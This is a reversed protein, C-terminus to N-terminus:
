AYSKIIILNERDVSNTSDSNTFYFRIPVFKNENFFLKWRLSWTFVENLDNQLEHIDTQSCITNLCKTDDAYLYSTSHVVPLLLDNIFIKFLLPGLISGQLVGLLVKSLNSLKDGISVCQVCSEFINWVLVVIKKVLSVWLKCNQYYLMTLSWTLHKRSIWIGYPAFNQRHFINVFWSQSFNSSYFISLHWHIWKTTM